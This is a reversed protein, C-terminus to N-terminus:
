EGKLKKPLMKAAVEFANSVSFFWWAPNKKAPNTTKAARQAKPLSRLAASAVVL